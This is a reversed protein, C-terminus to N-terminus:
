HHVGDHHRPPAAVALFRATTEGVNVLQRAVPPAVRVAGGVPLEHRDGDLRIAGPGELLYYFEEQDEHHHLSMADGAAVHWERPTLQECGLAGALDRNSATGRDSYELAVEASDVIAYESPM